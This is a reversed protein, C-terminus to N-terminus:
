GRKLSPWRGGALAAAELPDVAPVPEVPVLGGRSVAENLRRRAVEITADSDILEGMLEPHGAEMCAECVAAHRARANRRAVTIADPPLV